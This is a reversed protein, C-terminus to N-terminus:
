NLYRISMDCRSKRPPLRHARDREFQGLVLGASLAGLRELQGPGLVDTTSDLPHVPLSACPEASLPYGLGRAPDALLAQPHIGLEGPDFAVGILLRPSIQTAFRFRPRPVSGPLGPWDQDDLGLYQEIRIMGRRKNDRQGGVQDLIGFRQADPNGGGTAHAAVGIKEDILKTDNVVSSEKV